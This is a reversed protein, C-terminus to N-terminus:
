KVVEGNMASISVDLTGPKKVCGRRIELSDILGDDEIVGAHTLSDLAAKFLNDLDRRRKDPPHAVISVSLRGALSGLDVCTARLVQQVKARYKRADESLITKNGVRRWVKNATPPYPITFRM